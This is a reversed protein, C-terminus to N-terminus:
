HGAGAPKVPPKPKEPLERVWINRFRTPNGHDQLSIPGKTPHDKPYSALSKHQTPGILDTADQVLVGNLFVTMRAPQVMKGDEYKPARFVADYVQWEGPKRATNALPPAQGYISGVMGDPYTPNDYSDLVQLEYLDMLFVGSNGRGQSNGKVESPTMFEVHIQVDGFEDKSMIYGTGKAAEMYGDALKWKAESGDKKSKWKSLDKGDFLVIADSPPTGPQEPSSFTGPTVVPPQPRSMDHVEYQKADAQKDDALLWAPVLAIVVIIAFLRIFM